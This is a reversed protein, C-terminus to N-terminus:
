VNLLNRLCCIQISENIALMLKLEFRVTCDQGVHEIREFKMLQGLMSSAIVRGALNMSVDKNSALGGGFDM